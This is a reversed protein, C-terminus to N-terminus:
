QKKRSTVAALLPSFLRVFGKFPNESRLRAMRGQEQGPAAANKSRSLPNSHQGCHQLGRVKGWGQMGEIELTTKISPCCGRLM